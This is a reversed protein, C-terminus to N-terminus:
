ASKKRCSPLYGACTQTAAVDSRGDSVDHRGVQALSLEKRTSGRTGFALGFVIESEIAQQDALGRYRIPQAVSHM